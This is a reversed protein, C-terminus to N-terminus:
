NEACCSNFIERLVVSFNDAYKKMNFLSSKRSSNILRKRINELEHVNSSFLIAKRVYDEEDDAIWDHM